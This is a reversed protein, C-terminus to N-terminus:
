QLLDGVSRWTGFAAVAFLVLAGIIQVINGALISYPNSNETTEITNQRM